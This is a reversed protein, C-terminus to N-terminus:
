RSIKRPMNTWIILIKEVVSLANLQKILQFAETVQELLNYLRTLDVDQAMSQLTAQQTTGDAYGTVQKLRIMECIWGHIWHIPLVHEQKLWEAAVKIPDRQGTALAHFDALMTKQQELMDSDAFNLALLPAGHAAKLLPETYTPDDLQDELWSVAVDHEPLTFNLMQCRSRITAPLSSPQTSVLILLTQAPPEELTKLLSNAASINMAEAPSLIIIKYGHYQSSLSIKEIMQRIQDIKIQGGEKEPEILTLDPHNGASLLQCAPCQGCAQHQTDAQQCLVSHAFMQAFQLKGTGQPGHILLAHPLSQSLLRQQLSQWQDTQWPLLSSDTM